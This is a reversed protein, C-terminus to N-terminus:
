LQSPLFVYNKIFIAIKFTNTAPSNARQPHTPFRVPPLIWRNLCRQLREEADGVGLAQDCAGLVGQCPIKHPVLHILLYAVPIFCGSKSHASVVEHSFGPFSTPASM